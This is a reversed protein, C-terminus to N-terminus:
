GNVSSSDTAGEEGSLVSWMRWAGPLTLPHQSVQDTNCLTGQLLHPFQTRPAKHPAPPLMEAFPDSFCASPPLPQTSVENSSIQEPCLVRLSAWEASSFCAWLLARDVTWLGM